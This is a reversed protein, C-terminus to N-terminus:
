RVAAAGIKGTYESAVGETPRSRHGRCGNGVVGPPTPSFEFYVRGEGTAETAVTLDSSRDELIVSLLGAHLLVPEGPENFPYVPNLAQPPVVSEVAEVFAQAAESIDETSGREELWRCSVRRWRERAEWVGDQAGLRAEELLSAARDVRQCAERWRPDDTLKM